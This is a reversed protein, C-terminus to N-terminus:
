NKKLYKSALNKQPHENRESERWNELKVFATTCFLNHCLSASIRKGKEYFLSAARFCLHTFKRLEWISNLNLGGKHDSVCLYPQAWRKLIDTTSIITPNISITVSSMTPWTYFQLPFTPHVPIPVPIWHSLTSLGTNTLLTMPTNKLTLTWLICQQGTRM